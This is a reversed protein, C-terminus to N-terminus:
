GDAPIGWALSGNIYGTVRNWDVPSVNIPDYSYDDTQNFPSNDTKRMRLQVTVEGNAALTGSDFSLELCKNANTGGTIDIFTRGVTVGSASFSDIYTNWTPTGDNTFYYRVKISSLNLASSGTNIIKIYLGLQVIGDGLTTNFGQIKISDSASAPTPTPTTVATSTPTATPTPTPANTSAAYGDAPIGWVLSGNIYGTMRNWDVPSVNTPDYSYDDTQNFPSNDTKRMRLQVTVEGNAALTGSDFSLELCKNANTGGTIDIFTRGVTVGSASCSDIFTNWTPTGDNTFYYRVKISSLNLASSGTNIIKIYFGFQTVGDGLTTNCGMIKIGSAPAPTPTPTPTNTSATYGDAPIGWVLTGNIYGTVSDWDTYVHTKNSTIYSYDNTQDFCMTKEQDKIRASLTLVGGPALAGGSFSFEICKDAYTGGTIDIFTGTVSFSCYDITYTLPLTAENTFYYRVKIKSVDITTSGTNIINMNPSLMDTTDVVLNSYGQIKISETAPVPTGAGTPTVTNTPMSTQTPTVTNTLMPTPTQTPTATVYNDAPTGWVLNGKIFGAVRNWDTFVNEVSLPDYSYDDTQNFGTWDTKSMRLQLTVEESAALTGSDFSIELCKDANTGGTIDVFTRSVTVGSASCSDIYTNWTPTTGDNTFYYKAKIDSLNL